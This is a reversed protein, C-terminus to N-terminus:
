LTLSHLGKVSNQVWIGLLSIPFTWARYKSVVGPLMTGVGVLLRGWTPQSVLAEMPLQAPQQRCLVGLWPTSTSPLASIWGVSQKRLEPGGHLLTAMCVLGGKGLKFLFVTQARPLEACCQVVTGVPMLSGQETDEPNDLLAAGARQRCGRRWCLCPRIASCPESLEQSSWSWRLKKEEWWEM